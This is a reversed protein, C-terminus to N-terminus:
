WGRVRARALPQPPLAVPPDTWSSCQRCDDPESGDSASINANRVREGRVARPHQKRHSHWEAAFAIRPTVPSTYRADQCIGFMQLVYAFSPDVHRWAQSKCPMRHSSHPCGGCVSVSKVRHARM